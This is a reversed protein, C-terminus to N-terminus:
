KVGQVLLKDSVVLFKISILRKASRLRVRIKLRKLNKATRDNIVIKIFNLADRHGDRPRIIKMETRLRIRFM